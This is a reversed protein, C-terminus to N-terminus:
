KEFKYYIVLVTSRVTITFYSAVFAKIGNYAVKYLM